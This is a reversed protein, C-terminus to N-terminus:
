DVLIRSLTWPFPERAGREARLEPSLRQANLPMATGKVLPLRQIGNERHRYGRFSSQGHHLLVTLVAGSPQIVSKSESFGGAVLLFSGSNTAM